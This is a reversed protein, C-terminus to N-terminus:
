EDEKRNTLILDAFERFAGYGGKRSCVYDVNSKIYDFADNTTASLGANMLLDLDNLDDGIYAIEDLAYGESKIFEIILDFKNEIGQLIYDFDLEKGRRDVTKSRRGTLIGLKINDNKLFKCIYGDKTNFKKLELENGDYIVGGDTLVGDVDTILVKIKKSKSKISM